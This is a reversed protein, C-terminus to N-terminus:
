RTIPLNLASAALDTLSATSRMSYRGIPTKAAPTSFKNTVLGSTESSSLFTNYIQIDQIFGPFFWIGFSYYGIGLIGATAADFNNFNPNSGILTVVTNTQLVGDLYLEYSTSLHSTNVRQFAVHVWKNFNSSSFVIPSLINVVNTSSDQLYFAMRGSSDILCRVLKFTGGGTDKYISFITAATVALASLSIWGSICFPSSGFNYKTVGSLSSSAKDNVGDYPFATRFSVNNSGGKM